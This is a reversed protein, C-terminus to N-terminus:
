LEFELIGHKIKIKYGRKKLMGIIGMLSSDKKRSLFAGMGFEISAKIDKIEVTIESDKLTIELAQVNGFYLSANIRGKSKKQAVKM